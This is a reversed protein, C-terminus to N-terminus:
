INIATKIHVKSFFSVCVCYMYEGRFTHSLYRSDVAIIDEYLVIM